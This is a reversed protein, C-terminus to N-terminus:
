SVFGVVIRIIVNRAPVSGGAVARLGYAKRLFCHGMKHWVPIHWPAVALAIWGLRCCDVVQDFLHLLELHTAIPHMTNLLLVISPLKNPVSDLLQNSSSVCSVSSNVPYPTHIPELYRNGPDNVLQDIVELIITMTM